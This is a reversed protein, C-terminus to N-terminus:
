NKSYYEEEEDEEELSTNRATSRMWLKTSNEREHKEEERM